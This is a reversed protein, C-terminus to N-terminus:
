SKAALRRELEDRFEVMVDEFAFTQESPDPAAVTRPDDGMWDYDDYDFLQRELIQAAYIEVSVGLADAGEQLHRVMVDSLTVTLEGDAM